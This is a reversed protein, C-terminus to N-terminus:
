RFRAKGDAMPASAGALLAPAARDALLRRLSFVRMPLLGDDRRLFVLPPPVAIFAAATHAPQRTVPYPCPPVGSALARLVIRTTSPLSFFRSM